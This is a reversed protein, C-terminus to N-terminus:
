FGNCIVRNPTKKTDILNSWVMRLFLNYLVLGVKFDCELLLGILTVGVGQTHIFKSMASLMQQVQSEPGVCHSSSSQRRASCGPRTVTVGRDMLPHRRQRPRVSPRVAGNQALAM